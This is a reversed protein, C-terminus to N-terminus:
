LSLSVSFLVFTVSVFKVCHISLVVQQGVTGITWLNVPPRLPNHCVSDGWMLLSGEGSLTKVALYPLCAGDM